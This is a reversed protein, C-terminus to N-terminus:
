AGSAQSAQLNALEKRYPKRQEKPLLSTMAAGFLTDLVGLAVSAAEEDGGDTALEGLTQYVRGLLRELRWTKGTEVLEASRQHGEAGDIWRRVWGLTALNYAVSDEGHSLVFGLTQAWAPAQTSKNPPWYHCIQAVAQGAAACEKDDDVRRAAFHGWHGVLESVINEDPICLNEVVNEENREQTCVFELANRLDVVFRSFASLDM